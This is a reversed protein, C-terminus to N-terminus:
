SARWAKVIFSADSHSVGYIDGLFSSNVSDARDFVKNLAAFFEVLDAATFKTETTM